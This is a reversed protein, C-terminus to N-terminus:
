ESCYVTAEVPETSFVLDWESRWDVVRRMLNGEWLILESSDLLEGDTNQYLQAPIAYFAMQIQMSDAFTEEKVDGNSEESKLRKPMRGIEFLIGAVWQPSNSKRPLGYRTVCRKWSGSVHWKRESFCMGMNREIITQMSQERLTIVDASRLLLESEKELESYNITTSPRCLRESKRRNEFLKRIYYLKIIDSIFDNQTRVDNSPSSSLITM